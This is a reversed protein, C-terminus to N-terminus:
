SVRINCLNMRIRNFVCIRNLVAFDVIGRLWCSGPNLLRMLMLPMIKHEINIPHNNNSTTLCNRCPLDSFIKPHTLLVLWMNSCRTGWPSSRLHQEKQDCNNIFYFCSEPNRKLIVPIHHRYLRSCFKCQCIVQEHITLSVTSTLSTVCIETFYSCHHTILTLAKILALFWPLV